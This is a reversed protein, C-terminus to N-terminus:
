GHSALEAAFREQFWRTLMRKEYYLAESDGRSTMGQLYNMDAIRDEGTVTARGPAELSYRIRIRPWDAGGTLVRIQSGRVTGALDVQLLEITLVQDVPLRKGLKQLHAVLTKLNGDQDWSATGVDAYQMAPFLSVNVTAATAGGAAVALLLSSLICNRLLM